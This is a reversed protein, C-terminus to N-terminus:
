NANAAAPPTQFFTPKMYKMYIIGGGVLVSAGLIVYLTMRQTATPKPQVPLDRALELTRAPM